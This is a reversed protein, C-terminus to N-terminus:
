KETLPQDEFAVGAWGSRMFNRINAHDDGNPNELVDRTYFDGFANLTAQEGLQHLKAFAFIKCSGNNTNAENFQEGNRFATPTFVYCSDIVAMVDAFAVPGQQLAAVLSQPNM